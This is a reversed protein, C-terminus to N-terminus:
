CYSMLIINAANAAPKPATDSTKIEMAASIIETLQFLRSSHCSLLCSNDLLMILQKILVVAIYVQQSRNPLGPTAKARYARMHEKFSVFM